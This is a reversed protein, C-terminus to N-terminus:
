DDTLNGVVIGQVPATYYAKAEFIVSVEYLRKTPNQLIRLSPVTPLWLNLPTFDRAILYWETSSALYATEVVEIQREAMPNLQAGTAGGSSTGVSQFYQASGVLRRATDGLAPPVVLALPGRDLELPQGAANKWGRLIARASDLSSGALAGAVLNTQTGDGSGYPHEAHYINITGGAGNDVSESDGAELKNFVLSELTRQVAATLRTAGRQVLGPDRAEEIENFTMRGGFSDPSVTVKHSVGHSLASIEETGNWTPIDAVPHEAYVRKSAANPEVEVNCVKEFQSQWLGLTREFEQVVIEYKNTTDYSTVTIAM